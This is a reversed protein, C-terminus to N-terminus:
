TERSLRARTAPRRHLASWSALLLAAAIGFAIWTLFASAVGTVFLGLLLAAAWLLGVVVLTVLTLLTARVPHRRFVRAGAWSRGSAGSALPPLLVAGALLVFPLAIPAVMTLLVATLVVQASGVWLAPRLRLVARGPEQCTASVTFALAAAAACFSVAVAVAFPWSLSPVTEPVVTAAQVAAGGVIVPVLVRWGRIAARWPNM